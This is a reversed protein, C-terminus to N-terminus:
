LRKLAEEPSILNLWSKENKILNEYTLEQGKLDLKEVKEKSPRCLGVGYDTDIVFMELDDRESRLKVFAKWTDGCWEKTERPYRQMPENTPRCDHMLVCGGEELNDLCNIVDKYVQESWHLGDVFWCFAKQAHNKFYEDSTM